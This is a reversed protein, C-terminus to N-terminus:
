YEVPYVDLGGVVPFLYAEVISLNQVIRGQHGFFILNDGRELPSRESARVTQACLAEYGHNALALGIGRAVSCDFSDNMADWLAMSGKGAAGLAAKVESDQGIMSVFSAGYANHLSIDVAIVPGLARIKIAAKSNSVATRPLPGPPATGRATAAKARKDQIYHAVENTLAQQQLSCYLGGWSPIARDHSPGTFRNQDSVEDRIMLANMAHDRRLIHRYTDVAFYEQDFARFLTADPGIITTPASDACRFTANYVASLIAPALVVPM